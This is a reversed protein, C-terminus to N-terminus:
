HQLLQARNFSPLYPGSFCAQMPVILRLTTLGVRIMWQCCIIIGISHVALTIYVCILNVLLQRPHMWPVWVDVTFTSECRICYTPASCQPVARCRTAGCGIHIFRLEAAWSNYQVAVHTLLATMFSFREANPSSNTCCPDVQKVWRKVPEPLAIPRSQTHTRVIIKSGHFCM